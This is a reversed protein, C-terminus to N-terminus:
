TRDLLTHTYLQQGGCGRKLGCKKKKKGESNNNFVQQLAFSVATLHYCGSIINIAGKAAFIRSSM